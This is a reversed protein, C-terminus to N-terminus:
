LVMQTAEGFYLDPLFLLKSHLRKDLIKLIIPNEKKPQGILHKNKNADILLFGDDKITSNLFEVLKM